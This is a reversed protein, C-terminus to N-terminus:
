PLLYILTFVAVWVLDVFHWYMGGLEVDMHDNASYGRKLGRWMIMSLWVVGIAVHTGHFGTLVFFTSGLLSSGLTLGEAYLHYFEYVQGGLFMLGLGITAGLWIRFMRQNNQRIAAISLVMTLSSALLIAALGATFNIALFEHPLQNEPRAENVPKFILYTVILAAFFLTESGIFAWLGLKRSDVGMSTEDHGHGIGAPANTTSVESM